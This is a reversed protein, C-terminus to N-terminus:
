KSGWIIELVENAADQVEQLKDYAKRHKRYEEVDTDAACVVQMLTAVNFPKILTHIYPINAYIKEFEGHATHVIIPVTKDVERIRSIMTVGDNPMSIDTIVLDPKCELYKNYGEYGDKAVIVEDFLTWLVKSMAERTEKCDEVFLVKYPRRYVGELKLGM